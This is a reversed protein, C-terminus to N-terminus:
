IFGDCCRDPCSPYKLDKIGWKQFRNRLSRIIDTFYYELEQSVSTPFGVSLLDVTTHYNEHESNSISVDSQNSYIKGVEIQCDSLMNSVRYKSM